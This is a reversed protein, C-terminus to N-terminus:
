VELMKLVTEKIQKASPQKRKTEPHIIEVYQPMNFKAGGIEYVAQTLAWMVQAM